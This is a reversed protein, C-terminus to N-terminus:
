EITNSFRMFYNTKKEQLITSGPGHGAYVKIADPLASLSDISKQLKRSDGGALDTRGVSGAFLTDGTFLSGNDYFYFCVSGPTHGPTHLVKYSLGADSHCSNDVLDRIDVAPQDTVGYYPPFDNSETFAWKLDLKHIAIPAPFQRCLDPLASIHDCHGHTLLYLSPVLGHDKLCTRIKEPDDGPDIVLAESPKAWLIFCNVQFEGVVISEIHM